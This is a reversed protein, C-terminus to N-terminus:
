RLALWWLVIVGGWLSAALLAAVALGVNEWRVNRAADPPCAREADHEQIGSSAPDRRSPVLRQSALDCQRHRPASPGLMAVPAFEMMDPV